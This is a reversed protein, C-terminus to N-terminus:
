QAPFYRHYVDFFGTTTVTEEHIFHIQDLLTENLQKTLTKVFADYEQGFVTNKREELLKQKNADTEERDFTNICKIIHYGLESEVVESIENTALNFAASEFVTDMQGKGFSYTVTEDASYVSALKEFSQEGEMVMNYVELAQEYAAKKELASYPTKKGEGDVYYTKILIHQVTIIRAEDDSIEPNVDRIIWQYIKQAMAYEEYLEYVTDKSIGLLEIESDSLSAYYEGAATELQTLEAETLEIGKAKAMLYMTKVQAIRALVTDKVNEEFTVGEYEANWIETGYVSEYQNQINTLYVMFEEKKCIEDNIRFVEDKGTGTTFVVKTPSGDKGCGSIMTVCLVMMVVIMRIKGKNM